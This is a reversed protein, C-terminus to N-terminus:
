NSERGIRLSLLLLLLLVHCRAWAHLPAIVRHRSQGVQRHGRIRIIVKIQLHRVHLHHGRSHLQVLQRGSHDGACGYWRHVPRPLQVAWLSRSRGRRNTTSTTLTHHLTNRWRPANVIGTLIRRSQARGLLSNLFPLLLLPSLSYPPSLIYIKLHFQRNVISSSSRLFISLYYSIM